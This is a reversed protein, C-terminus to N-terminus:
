PAQVEVAVKLHSDIGLFGTPVLITFSDSGSFGPKPRYGFTLGGPQLFTRLDGHSPKSYVEAPATGGSIFAFGSFCWADRNVVYMRMPIDDGARSRNRGFPAMHCIYNGEAAVTPDAPQSAATGSASPTPAEKDCGALLLLLALLCTIIKM